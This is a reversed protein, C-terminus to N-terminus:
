MTIKSGEAQSRVCVCGATCTISYDLLSKHAVAEHSSLLALPQSCLSLFHQQIRRFVTSNMSAGCSTSCRAQDDM